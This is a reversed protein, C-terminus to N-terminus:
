GERWGALCCNTMDHKTMDFAEQPSWGTVERRSKGRDFVTMVVSRSYLKVMWTWAPDEHLRMAGNAEELEPTSVRDLLEERSEHDSLGTMIKIILIRDDLSQNCLDGLIKDCTKTSDPGIGLVHEVSLYSKFNPKQLAPIEKELKTVQYYDEWTSSWTEMEDLTIGKEMQPPPKAVERGLNGTEEHTNAEERVRTSKEEEDRPKLFQIEYKLQDLDYELEDLEVMYEDDPDYDEKGELVMCQIVAETYKDLAIRAKDVRALLKTKQETTIQPTDIDQLDTLDDDLFCIWKVADGRLQCRSIKAVTLEDM